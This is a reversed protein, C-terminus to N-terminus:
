EGEVPPSLARIAKALSEGADAKCIAIINERGTIPHPKEASTRMRAAYADAVKAAAEIAERRTAEAAPSPSRRNWAAIAEAESDATVFADCDFCQVHGKMPPWEYGHGLSDGGCFPCERLREVVDDAM